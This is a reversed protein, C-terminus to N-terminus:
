RRRRTRNASAVRLQTVRPDRSKAVSQNPTPKRHRKGPADVVGGSRGKTAAAARGSTSAKATTGAAKKDAGSKLTQGSRAGPKAAKSSARARARQGSAAGKDKAVAATSKGSLQELLEVASDRVETVQANLAERDLWGEAKAQVSGVLRGLQEAFAVMRQEVPDATPAASEGAAAKDNVSEDNMSMGDGMPDRKDARQAAAPKM